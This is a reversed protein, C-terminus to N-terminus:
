GPIDFVTSIFKHEFIPFCKLFLRCYNSLISARDSVPAIPQPSGMPADQIEMAELENLEDKLDEAEEGLGALSKAKVFAVFACLSFATVLTIKM